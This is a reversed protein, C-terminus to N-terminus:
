FRWVYMCHNFHFAGVSLVLHQHPDLAAEVRMCLEAATLVVKIFEKTTQM